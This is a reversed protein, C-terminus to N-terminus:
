HRFIMVVCTKRSIETFSKVKLRNAMAHFDTKVYIDYHSGELWEVFATLPEWKRTHDIIIVGERAVALLRGLIKEQDAASFLHLAFSIFCWDASNDAEDIALLDGDRFDVTLCARAARFRAKGLMGTSADRATVTKFLRALQLTLFGTGCAYELATKGSVGPITAVHADVAGTITPTMTKEMSNYHRCFWNYFRRMSEPPRRHKLFPM